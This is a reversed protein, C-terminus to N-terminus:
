RSRLLILQESKIANNSHLGYRQYTELPLSEELDWGNFEAIQTLYSPTDLLFTKGGLTTQNHGVVLAFTGGKKLMKHVNNFM